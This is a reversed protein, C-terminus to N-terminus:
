AKKRWKGYLFAGLWLMFASLTNGLTGLILDWRGSVAVSPLLGVGGLTLMMPFSLPMNGPDKTNFTIWVQPFSARAILIFGLSAIIAPIDTLGRIISNAAALINISLLTVFAALLASRKIAM